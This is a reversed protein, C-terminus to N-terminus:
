RTRSRSRCGSSRASTASCIRSTRWSSPARTPAPAPTPPEPSTPVAPRACRADSCDIVSCAGRPQGSDRPPQPPPGGGSDQRATPTPRGGLCRKLCPVTTFVWWFGARSVGSPASRATGSCTLTTIGLDGPVHLLPGASHVAVDGSGVIDSRHHVIVEHVDGSSSPGGGFDWPSRSLRTNSSVGQRQESGPRRRWTCCCRAAWWCRLGVLAASPARRPRVDAAGCGCAPVRSGRPREGQWCAGHPQAAAARRATGGLRAAALGDCRAAAGSRGLAGRGRAGGGPSPAPDDGSVRPMPRAADPVGCDSTRGPRAATGPVSSM